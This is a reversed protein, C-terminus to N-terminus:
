PPVPEAAGKAAKMAALKERWNPDYTPMGRSKPRRRDYIAWAVSVPSVESDPDLLKVAKCIEAAAAPVSVSTDIGVLNIAEQIFSRPGNRKWPPSPKRTTEPEVPEPVTEPDSYRIPLLTADPTSFGLCDPLLGAIEQPKRDWFCPCQRGVVDEIIFQEAISNFDALGIVVRVRGPRTAVSRAWGCGQRYFYGPHDGTSFLFPDSNGSGVIVIDRWYLGDFIVRKIDAVGPEQLPM